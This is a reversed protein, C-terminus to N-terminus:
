PVLVPGIVLSIGGQKYYWYISSTMESFRSGILEILTTWRISIFAWIIQLAAHVSNKHGVALNLQQVGLGWSSPILLHPRQSSVPCSLLTKIFPILARIFHSGPSSGPEREAMHPYLFDAAYLGSSTVWWLGVVSPPVRIVFECGGSGHSIWTQQKLWKM